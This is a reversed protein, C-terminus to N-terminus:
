NIRRSNEKEKIVEIDKITIPRKDELLEVFVDKGKDTPSDKYDLVGKDDWLVSVKIYPLLPKIKLFLRNRYAEAQLSLPDQFEKDFGLIIEEAKLVNIILRAQAQTISSGCVALSFDKNRLYSHSQLVGKESELLLVKKCTKIRSQNQSIGYLNNGLSHNLFKGEISLPVYKGIQEIKWEDLFRGRIGVLAGNIDRHPITIQNTKGWYGIEFENMAERSIHEKIWGEYPIYSFLELYTEKLPSLCISRKEKGQRFRNLWEWDNIKNEKQFTSCTELSIMKGTLEAVYKVAQYFTMSIGQARKARMVLEYIGFSDGCETYCHFVRGLYGNRPEPYYYLKHSKGNHCVTQFVLSDSQRKPIASGLSVVVKIVDDQTLSDRIADKDLQRM